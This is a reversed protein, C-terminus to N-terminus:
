EFLWLVADEFQSQWFKESHTGGKVYKTILNENSYGIKQLTKEMKKTGSTILKHEDLGANLYIKSNTILGQSEVQKRCEDSWWFAPSFAGIKSFTEPYEMGLYMSIVGGLSSGMTATNDKDTKTRYNKDIFPKLEEVIFKGYASGNGGGYAANKWPTYEDNRTDGGNDIGVIILKLKGEKELKEMTEDVGWEGSYSTLVDFLNQGDHMYLVPYKEDSKKYNMPLCIWIRRTTNLTKIPFNNNIIKVNPLQTSKKEFLDNWGKIDLKVIKSKPQITRNDISQGQLTSEVTAWNGRTIKYEIPMKANTLKLLYNGNEQKTFHYNKANPQWQNLNSAFFLTDNKPTNEPINNISLIINQQCSSFYLISIIAILLIKIFNKVM